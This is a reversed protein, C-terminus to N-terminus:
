RTTKLNFAEEAEGTSPICADPMKQQNKPRFNTSLDAFRPNQQLVQQLMALKEEHIRKLLDLKNKEAKNARATLLNKHALHAQQSLLFIKQALQYNDNDQQLGSAEYQQHMTDVLKKLDDLMPQNISSQESSLANIVLPSDSQPLTVRSDAAASIEPTKTTQTTSTSIKSFVGVGIFSALSIVVILLKGSIASVVAPTAASLLAVAEPSTVIRDIESCEDSTLPASHSKLRTIMELNKQCDICTLLHQSFGQSLQDPNTSIETFFKECGSNM